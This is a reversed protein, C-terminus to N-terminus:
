VKGMSFVEAIKRELDSRSLNGHLQLKVQGNNFFLVLPVSKLKYELFLERNQDVDVKVFKVRGAYQPELKEITEGLIKCPGCWKGYFDVVVPKDSSLVQEKWEGTKLEYVAMIIINNRFTITQSVADALNGM